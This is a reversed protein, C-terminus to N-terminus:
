VLNLYEKLRKLDTSKIGYKRILFQKPEKNKIDERLANWADSPLKVRKLTREIMANSHRKEHAKM